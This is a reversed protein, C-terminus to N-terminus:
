EENELHDFYHTTSDQTSDQVPKSLEYMDDLTIGPMAVDPAPAPLAQMDLVNTISDVDVMQGSRARVEDLKKQLRKEAASQAKDRAEQLRNTGVVNIAEVLHADCILRGALTRIVGVRNDMLDYELMVKQGNWAHLDAHVYARAQHKVQARRVMLQVAPRKLECVSAVPAIRELREWIQMRTVYKNEPHPRAHYRTLWHNFAAVFEALSPPQARGHKCDNVTKGLADPDAGSGCYFQPQWLRLFDDKMIRFFQEVHGKGHPNGPITRVVDQVGARAYFGSVEDATFQNIYGSGNDVYIIPPVHGHAAFSEAFTNQVAIASEHEDARWGVVVRSALDMIVTLEPRWIDGTMPHALYVDARYGDAMYVDGPLANDTCRKVYQKQTLRYLKQGIRAPSKAGFQAPLSHLYHLVQDYTCTLPDFGEEEVLLRHVSAIDPKSPQCYFEIAFAYWPKAEVVRGKHQPLLGSEGELSFTKVWDFLASRAPCVRGSKAVLRLQSMLHASLEGKHAKDQLTNIAVTLSHGIQAHAQVVRVIDARAVAIQRAKTSARAWPNPSYLQILKSRSPVVTLAPTRVKAGSVEAGNVAQPLAARKMGTLIPQTAM